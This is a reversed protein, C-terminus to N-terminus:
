DVPLGSPVSAPRGLPRTDATIGTLAHLFAELDAVDEASLAVPRIDLVAAQRAM